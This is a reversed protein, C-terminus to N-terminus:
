GVVESITAYNCPLSGTYTVFTTWRQIYVTYQEWHHWNMDLRTVRLIPYLVADNWINANRRKSM